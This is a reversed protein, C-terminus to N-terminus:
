EWNHIEVQREAHVYALISLEELLRSSYTTIRRWQKGSPSSLLEHEFQWTRKACLLMYDLEDGFDEIIISHKITGLIMTRANIGLSTPITPNPDANRSGCRNFVTVAM